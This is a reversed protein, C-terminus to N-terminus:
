NVNLNKPSPQSHQSGSNTKLRWSLEITVLKHLGKDDEIMIMIIIMIMIMIIIMIM